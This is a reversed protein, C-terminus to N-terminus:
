AKRVIAIPTQQSGQGLPNDKFIAACQEETFNNDSFGLVNCGIDNADVIIVTHGLYEKLEVAVKDPDKPALKAYKNYPPLTYDCPGDIARGKPGVINYFVGRKGFPKTLASCFAAFLIKPRGIDNIALQMTEPMGLGIGYSTKQVFRSLFKALPSVKIDELKFARGQSIAVIKESIFVADGEELYPKVYSDMIEKLSDGSKVVHTKVPYRLYKGFGTEIELNKGKNPLLGEKLSM